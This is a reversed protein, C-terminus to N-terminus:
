TGDSSLGGDHATGTEFSEFGHPLLELLLAKVDTDKLTRAPWYSVSFIMGLCAQTMAAVSASDVGPFKQAFLSEWRATYQGRRRTFARKWPDVLSRVERQYLNVLQRHEMAFEIHHELARRLDREPDDYVPVTASILEDMAENLLTALIEDKGSFHRYLSPGSLGARTGLEDVGVGHFGKEYFALAAADLIARDRDM